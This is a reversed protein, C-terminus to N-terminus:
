DGAPELGDYLGPLPERDEIADDDLDDSSPFSDHPWRGRGSWVGSRSAVDRGGEARPAEDAPPPTGAAGEAAPPTESPPAAAPSEPEAAPRASREPAEAGEACGLVFSFALLLALPPRSSAPTM